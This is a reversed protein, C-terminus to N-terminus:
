DNDALLMMVYNELNTYDDKQVFQTVIEETSYNFIKIQSVDCYVFLLFLFFSFLISIVLIPSALAPREEKPLPQTWDAEQNAFSARVKQVYAKREDIQEGTM